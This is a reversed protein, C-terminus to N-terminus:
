ELPTDLFAQILGSRVAFRVLQARSELNLKQMGRSRYTDVTKRSINLAEGIEVSAYGLAILRLVQQERESLRHWADQSAPAEPEPLLDEVVYKAMSPHIYVNGHMVSWMASFLEADAAKKSIYGSAGGRIAEILYQPEEHMTLVLIKSQPVLRRLTPLAELGGLGAMSLDLLILDPCLAEALELTELGSAAEAVVQYDGHNDLLAKLGSRLVSHDDAILVRWPRPMM